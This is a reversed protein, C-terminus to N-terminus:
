EGLVAFVAVAYQTSVAATAAYKEKTRRASYSFIVECVYLSFLQIAMAHAYICYMYICVGNYHIPMCVDHMACMLEYTHVIHVDYVLM